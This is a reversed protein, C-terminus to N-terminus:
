VLRIFVITPNMSLSAPKPLAISIVPPPPPFCRKPLPFPTSLLLRKPCPIPLVGIGVLGPTPEPYMPEQPSTLKPARAAVSALRMQMELATNRINGDYDSNELCNESQLDQDWRQRVLALKELESKITAIIRAVKWFWHIPLIEPRVARRRMTIMRVNMVRSNISARENKGADSCFPTSRTMRMKSCGRRPSTIFPTPVPM